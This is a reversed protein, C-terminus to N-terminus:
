DVKQMKWGAIPGLYTKTFDDWEVEEIQNTLRSGRDKVQSMEFTHERMDHEFYLVTHPWGFLAKQGAPKAGFPQCSKKMDGDDKENISAADTLIFMHARETIDYMAEYLLRYQANIPGWDRLQDYLPETRKGKEGKDKSKEREDELMQRMKMYYDAHGVGFVNHDYWDQVAGWGSNIKDYVFIDGKEIENAIEKIVKLHGRDGDWDNSKIHHITYNGRDLLKKNSEEDEYLMFDWADDVDMVHIHGLSYRRALTLIATSKGSNGAGYLVQRERIRPNAPGYVMPM